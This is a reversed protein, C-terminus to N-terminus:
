NIVRSLLIQSRKRSLIFYRVVSVVVGLLIILSIVLLLIAWTPFGQGVYDSSSFDCGYQYSYDDVDAVWLYFNADGNAPSEFNILGITFNQLQNCMAYLQKKSNHFGLTDPWVAKSDDIVHKFESYHFSESDPTIDKVKYVRNQEIATMYLHGRAGAILGDSASKKYGLKIVKSSIDNYHPERLYKTDISYLTRSTLPTYYLTRRDCSLAIGDVGTLMQADEYVRKGNIVVWHSSDPITSNDKTLVRWINDTKKNLDIIILGPYNAGSDSIYIFNNETDYVLDNLFSNAPDIFNNLDFTQLVEGEISYKNLKAAGNIYTGNILAQDLAWINDYKDIEFGLVSQLASPNKAENGEFNPFPRFIADTNNVGVFVNLTSPVHLWWRPISVFITGNSSVKVGAPMCSRYYHNNMYDDTESQNRFKFTIKNMKHLIRANYSAYSLSLALYLFIFTAM